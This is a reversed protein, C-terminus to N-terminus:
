LAFTRAEIAITTTLSSNGVNHIIKKRTNFIFIGQIKLKVNKIGKGQKM